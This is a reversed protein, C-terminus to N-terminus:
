PGQGKEVLPQSPMGANTSQPALLVPQHLHNSVYRWYSNDMAITDGWPLHPIHGYLINLQRSAAQASKAEISYLYLASVLGTRDSGSKCHILLPKPADRITALIQDMQENSVERTASLAFDYHRVGLQQAANTEASYWEQNNAPGRLNLISKIGHERVTTDIAEANMQASRYILGSSVTHFNHHVALNTAFLGAGLSLLALVLFLFRLRRKWRPNSKFSM